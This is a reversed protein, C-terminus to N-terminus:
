EEEVPLYLRMTGFFFFALLLIMASPRFLAVGLLILTWGITQPNRSWRYVGETVLRNTELGNMRRVSRYVYAAGGGLALGAAVLLSGIGLALPSPLSFRWTSYETAVVTLAFHVGTFAWTILMTPLSPRLIRRYDRPLLKALVATLVLLLAWGLIFLWPSNLVESM